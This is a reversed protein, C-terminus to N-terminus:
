EDEKMFYYCFKTEAESTNVSIQVGEEDCIRKVLNLGLGLGDEGYNERYYAEFISDTNHILLSRSSFCIGIHNKTETLEILVHESEETYKVANSLNNDIIRQLKTENFFMYQNKKMPILKLVINSKKAIIDFFELRSRLFDVLEIEKKPYSVQEKKILYSLDEYINHISKTAIEINIMNPHKGYYLEFLEINAMIVSLPTNTEHITHRLFTKQSELLKQSYQKQKELERAQKEYDETSRDILHTLAEITTSYGSSDGFSKKHINEEKQNNEYISESLAVVTFTQNMLENHNEHHFFEGYTFFGVTTSTQAFPKIEVQMFDPMYRRRAMCSYVFFSEIPHQYTNVFSRFSEKMIMKANGFGLRVRDGSQLNGAFSLSSDEHRAIVARAVNLGNKEIILPFEIGTAPLAESVQAGLYKAYFDVPSMGDISYVRNNQAHDITHEVGIPSWNFSFDNYVHLYESQLAVGVAGQTFVKRGYSLYTQVFKGNDGAMGGAIMVGPAISEVGKLFAEGNSTTGDTLLILLKTNEKVLAKALYVGNEFSDAGETKTSAIDTREFVSVAIITHETTICEQAIEGDTTAGVIHACPLNQLLYRSVQALFAKEQGCFIQVLIHKEKKFLSLDVAELADQDTITYTTTRM